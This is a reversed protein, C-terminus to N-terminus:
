RSIITYDGTIQNPNTEFFDDGRRQVPNTYDPHFLAGDKGRNGFKGPDGDLGDRGKRGQNGSDGKKGDRSISLDALIGEGQGPFGGLGPLGPDAGKGGKGRVGPLGGDGGRYSVKVIESNQFLRRQIDISSYYIRIFGGNGGDGGIGGHGGNGGDGGNGAHGGRGGNKGDKGCENGNGGNGGRGGNGGVGGDGGNQGDGGDGGEGGDVTVNLKFNAGLSIDNLEIMINSANYGRAGHGGHEGSIGRLGTEGPGGRTGHGGSSNWANLDFLNLGCSADPGKRGEEGKRGKPRKPPIDTYSKGNAGKIGRISKIVFEGDAYQLPAIGLNSKTLIVGGSEFIITDFKIGVTRPADYSIVEDQHSIEVYGDIILSQGTQGTMLGKLLLQTPNDPDDSGLRIAEQGASLQPVLLIFLVISRLVLM